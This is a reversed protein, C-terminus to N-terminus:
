KSTPTNGSSELYEKSLQNTAFVFNEEYTPTDGSEPHGKSSHDAPFQLQRGELCVIRNRELVPSWQAPHIYMPIQQSIRQPVCEPIDVPPAKKTGIVINTLITLTYIRGIINIMVIFGISRTIVTVLYICGCIAAICGSSTANMAQRCLTKQNPKRPPAIRRLLCVISLPVLTDVTTSIIASVLTTLLGLRRADEPGRIAGYVVSFLSFCGHGIVSFLLLAAIVKNSSLQYFRRVLFLKEIVSVVATTLVIVSVPWPQPALPLDDLTTIDAAPLDKSPIQMVPSPVALITWSNAFVAVVCLTDILFLGTVLVHIRRGASCKSFYYIVATVELTYLMANIWSSALTVSQLNRTGEYGSM